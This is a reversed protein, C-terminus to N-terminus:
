ELSRFSASHASISGCIGATLGKPRGHSVVKRATSFAIGYMVRVAYYQRISGIFKGGNL